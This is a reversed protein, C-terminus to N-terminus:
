TGCFLHDALLRSLGASYFLGKSGLGFFYHLDPNGPLAGIAPKRDPTSVRVGAWRDIIDDTGPQPIDLMATKGLLVSDRAPDPDTHDFHHEYTSGLILRNDKPIIYGYGSLAT